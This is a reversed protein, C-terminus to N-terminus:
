YTSIPYRSQVTHELSYHYVYKYKASDGLDFSLTLQMDANSALASKSVDIKIVAENEFNYVHCNQLPIEMKDISVSHVKPYSQEAEFPNSLKYFVYISSDMVMASWHSGENCINMKRRSYDIIALKTNLLQMQAEYTNLPADVHDYQALLSDALDASVDMPPKIQAILQQKYERLKNHDPYTGSRAIIGLLSDCMDNLSVIDKSYSQMDKDEFKSITRLIISTQLDTMYTINAQIQDFSYASISQDSMKKKNTLLYLFTVNAAISITLVIKFYTLTIKSM